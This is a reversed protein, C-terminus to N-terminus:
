PAEGAELVQESGGGRAQVPIRHRAEAAAKPLKLRLVGNELEATCSETSVEGPLSLRYDFRGARRGRRGVESEGVESEGTEPQGTETEGGYEGGIRVESGQVDVAVDDPRVGPMDAEVVFADDTEEIDVPPSWSNVSIRAVSPYASSLMRSMQDYLDDFGAFPDWRAAPYRRYRTPLTM